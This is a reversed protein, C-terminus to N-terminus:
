KNARSSIIEKYPELIEKLSNALSELHKKLLGLKIKKGAKMTIIYGYLHTTLINSDENEILLYNLEENNLLENGIQYYEIWMSSVVDTITQHAEKGEIALIDGSIKCIFVTDIGNKIANKLLGSLASSKIM